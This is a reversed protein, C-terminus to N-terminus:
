NMLAFLPLFFDKGAAQQEGETDIVFLDSSPTDIKDDVQIPNSTDNNYFLNNSYLQPFLAASLEKEEEDIVRNSNNSNKRRKKNTINSQNSAQPTSHARTAKSASNTLLSAM